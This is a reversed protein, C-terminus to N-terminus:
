VVKRCTFCDPDGADRKAIDVVPGSCFKDHRTNRVGLTRAGFASIGESVQKRQPNRPFQPFSADGCLREASDHLKQSGPLSQRIRERLAVQDDRAGIDLYRRAALLYHAGQESAPDSKMRTTTNSRPRVTSSIFSSICVCSRSAEREHLAAGVRGCRPLAVRPRFIGGTSQRQLEWNEYVYLCSATM